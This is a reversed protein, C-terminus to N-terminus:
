YKFVTMVSSIAFRNGKGRMESYCEETIERYETKGCVRDVFDKLMDATKEQRVRNVILDDDCRFPLLKIHDEISVHKGDRTLRSTMVYQKWAAICRDLQDYFVLWATCDPNLACLNDPGSGTTLMIECNLAVAVTLLEAVDEPFSAIEYYEDGVDGLTEEVTLGLRIVRYGRALMFEVSDKFISIEANRFDYGINSAFTRRAIHHSKCRVNLAAIRKSDLIWRHEGLRAEVMEKIEDRLRVIRDRRSILFGPDLRDVDGSDDLSRGYEIKEKLLRRTIWGYQVVRSKETELLELLFRNSPIEGSQGVMFYTKKNTDEFLGVRLTLVSVALHGIFQDLVPIMIVEQGRIERAAVEVLLGVDKLVSRVRKPMGRLKGSVQRRILALRGM